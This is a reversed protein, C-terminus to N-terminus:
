KLINYIIIYDLSHLCIVNLDDKMNL